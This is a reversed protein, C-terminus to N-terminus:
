SGSAADGQYNDMRIEIYAEDRIQRLWTETEEKIKRRAIAQRARARRREETSDRERRDQLQVIHWGRATRFPQSIQGVKLTQLSEAFGTPLGSTRVWGLEGGQNASSPDDSHERALAAFDDGAEVRSRLEDALAKARENDRIENLELLIHRIKVEEIMGGEGTDGSASRVDVLKIIHFGSPSRFVDSVEGPDLSPVVESFVTPLYAGSMWGLDGGQLAKQGDSHSIALDAFKQEGVARQRLTDARKRASELKQESADDGVAILIHRIRYERDEQVRLKESELYREIDEESVQTRQHIERQRLKSILLENRLRQRLQALDMGDARLAQRFQETTMGNQRALRDLAERVENDTVRLGASEARQTQLRTMILQDLVQSRLVNEPVDAVDSGMRRRIQAVAADLESELILGQGVVAVIRDLNQAGPAPTSVLGLAAFVLSAIALTRTM